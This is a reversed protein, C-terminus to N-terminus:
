DEKSKKVRDNIPRMGEKKAYHIASYITHVSCGLIRATVKYSQKFFMKMEMAYALEKNGIIRKCGMTLEEIHILGILVQSLRVM